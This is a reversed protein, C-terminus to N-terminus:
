RAEQYLIAVVGEKNQLEVAISSSLKWDLITEAGWGVLHARDGVTENHGFNFNNYAFNNTLHMLKLKLWRDQSM